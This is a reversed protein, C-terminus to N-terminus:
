LTNNESQSTNYNYSTTFISKDKNKPRFRPISENEFLIGYSTISKNYENLLYIDKVKFM